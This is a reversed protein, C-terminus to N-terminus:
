MKAAPWMVTRFWPAVYLASSVVPLGPIIMLRVCLSQAEIACVISLKMIDFWTEADIYPRSICAKVRIGKIIYIILHFSTRLLQQEPKMVYCPIMTHVIALGHPIREAVGVILSHAFCLSEGSYPSLHLRVDTLRLILFLEFAEVTLGFVCPPPAISAQEIELLEGLHRERYITRSWSM